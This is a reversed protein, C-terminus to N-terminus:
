NILIPIDNLRKQLFLSLVIKILKPKLDMLMPILM